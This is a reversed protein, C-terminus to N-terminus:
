NMLGFLVDRRLMKSGEEDAQISELVLLLLSFGM